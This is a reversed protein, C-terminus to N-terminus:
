EVMGDDDGGMKKISQEFMAKIEEETMGKAFCYKIFSLLSKGDGRAPSYHFINGDFDELTM